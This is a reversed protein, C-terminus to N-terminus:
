NFGNSISFFFLKCAQIDDALFHLKKVIIFLRGISIFSRLSSSFNVLYLNLYYIIYIFLLLM